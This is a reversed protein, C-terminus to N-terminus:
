RRACVGDDCLPSRGRHRSAALGCSVPSRRRRRVRQRCGRDAPQTFPAAGEPGPVAPTEGAGFRCAPAHCRRRSARPGLTPLGRRGGHSACRRGVRGDGAARRWRGSHRARDRPPPGLAFGDGASWPDRWAALSPSKRASEVEAIRRRERDILLVVRRCDGHKTTRISICFNALHRDIFGTDFRGARFSPTSALM